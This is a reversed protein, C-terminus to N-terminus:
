ELETMGERWGFLDRVLGEVKEKESGLARGEKDKLNRMRTKLRWPDKAWRVIEWPDKHGHEECFTRWCKEKKEAVMRKMKEAIGKWRRFKEGVKYSIGDKHTKGGRRANRLRRLQASLEEDWWRKSKATLRIKKLHDAQFELLKDYESDGKLEYYWRLDKEGEKKGVGLTVDVGDWDVVEREVESWGSSGEMDVM